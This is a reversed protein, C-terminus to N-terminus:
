DPRPSGELNVGSTGVSDPSPGANVGSKRGTHVPESVPIDYGQECFLAMDEIKALWPLAYGQRKSLKFKPVAQTITQFCTLVPKTGASYQMARQRADLHADIYNRLSEEQDPSWAYTQDGM